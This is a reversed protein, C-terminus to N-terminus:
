RPLLTHPVSIPHHWVGHGLPRNTPGASAPACTAGRTHHPCAPHGAGEQSATAGTGPPQGLREGFGTGEVLARAPLLASHPQATVRRVTSAPWATTVAPSQPAPTGPSVAADRPQEPPATVGAPAAPYLCVPCPERLVGSLLALNGRGWPQPEWCTRGVDGTPSNPCPTKTGPVLHLVEGGWVAGCPDQSGPQRSHRDQGGAQLLRQCLERRSGCPQPAPAAGGAWASLEPAAHTGVGCGSGWRKSPQLWAGAPARHRPAGEGLGSGQSEWATAPPLALMAWPRHLSSPARSPLVPCRGAQAPSLPGPTQGPTRDPRHLGPSQSPQPCPPSRGLAAGAAGRQGSGRCGPQSWGSQGEKQLALSTSPLSTPLGPRRGSGRQGDRHHLRLSSTKDRAAAAGARLAPALGPPPCTSLEDWPGTGGRAEHDNLVEGM